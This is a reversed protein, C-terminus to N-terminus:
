TQRGSRAIELVKRGLETRRLEEGLTRLTISTRRGHIDRALVAHQWVFRAPGHIVVLSRELLPVRVIREEDDLFTLVSDSELSLDLIAQGYAFTDDHHFDLNSAEGEQYLLVFADTTEWTELAGRLTNRCRADGSDIKEVCARLRAEIRYAYGPLGRFGNVNMKRKNFNIRPGHHQKLKGSQAKKFPVAEIEELLRDSEAPSVFDRFVHVGLFSPCGPVCQSEPDFDFIGPNQRNSVPSRTRGVSEGGTPRSQLPAPLPIVDDM